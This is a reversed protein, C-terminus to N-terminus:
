ESDALVDFCREQDVDVRSPLPREHDDLLAPHLETRRCELQRRVHGVKRRHFASCELEVDAARVHGLNSVQQLERTRCAARKRHVRHEARPHVLHFPQKKVDVRRENLQVRLGIQGWCRVINAAIDFEIQFAIVQRLDRTDKACALQGVLWDFHGAAYPEDVAADLGRFHDNRIDIINGDIDITQEGRHLSQAAAIQTEPNGAGVERCQGDVEPDVLSNRALGVVDATFKQHMVRVIAQTTDGPGDAIGLDFHVSSQYCALPKGAALEEM